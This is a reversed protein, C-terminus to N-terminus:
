VNLCARGGGYVTLNGTPPRAQRFTHNPYPAGEVTFNQWQTMYYEWDQTEMAYVHGSSLAENWEEEEDIRLYPMCKDNPEGIVIEVMVPFGSITTGTEVTIETFVDFFSDIGPTDFDLAVMNLTFFTTPYAGNQVPVFMGPPAYASVHITGPPSVYWSFNNFPQCPEVSSCYMVAPDYNLTANGGHVLVPPSALQVYLHTPISVPAYPESITTPVPQCHLEGTSFTPTKITVDKDIDASSHGAEGSATWSLTGSKNDKVAKVVMEEGACNQNLWGGSYHGAANSDDTDNYAGGAAPYCNIYVTAGSVPNGSEDKVQGSVGYAAFASTGSVFLVFLSVLIIKKM